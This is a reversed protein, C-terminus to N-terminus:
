PRSAPCGAMWRGASAATAAAGASGRARGPRCSCAACGRSARTSCCAARKRGAARQPDHLSIAACGKKLVQLRQFVQLRGVSQLSHANGVPATEGGRGGSVWCLWWASLRATDWWRPRRGRPSSCWPPPPTTAPCPCTPRAAAAAPAAARTATCGCMRLRWCRRTCHRAALTPKGTSCFTSRPVRPVLFNSLLSPRNFPFPAIARRWVLQAAAARAM